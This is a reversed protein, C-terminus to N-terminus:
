SLSLGKRLSSARALVKPELLISRPRLPNKAEILGIALKAAREGIGASDQDVTTLPIRLIESYRTNGCGVLAIDEPVRLGAELIAKMAGAAAPDNYCFLGDPRPSCTLLQRTATYGGVDGQYDGGAPLEAVYEPPATLGHQALARRYGALRGLATSVEPGRLHAIRRCGQAILHGTALFGVLEDDVGVFNAHLGTFKRDVLV